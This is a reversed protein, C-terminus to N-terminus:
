ISMRTSPVKVAMSTSRASRDRLITWLEGGLCVELLMYLYKSCRFTKYLRCVRVCVFVCVCVCVCVCLCFCVHVCVCMCARMCVCVACEM